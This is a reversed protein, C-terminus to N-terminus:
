PIIEWEQIEKAIKTIFSNGRLETYAAHLCFFNEYEFQHIAKAERNRYYINLMDSRLQCKVGNKIKRVSAIVPLVVGLLVGIESILAVVTELSM